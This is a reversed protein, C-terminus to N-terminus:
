TEWIERRMKEALIVVAVAVVVPEVSMASLAIQLALLLADGVAVPCVRGV